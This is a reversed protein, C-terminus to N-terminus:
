RAGVMRVRDGEIIPRDSQLIIPVDLETEASFVTNLDGRLTVNIDVREAFYSYGLLTNPVQRAVLIFNGRPDERIASNPLHNARTTYVDEIIVNAREGGIAGSAIVTFDVRFRGDVATINEIEGTLSRDSIAPVLIEINRSVAGRPTPIFSSPFYISFEFHHGQRVATQLVPQNETVPARDEMDAAFHVVGNTVAYHTYVREDIDEALNEELLNELYEIEALNEPRHARPLQTNRFRLHLIRDLIMSRDLNEEEVHIIFLPDGERVTDGDEVLFYIQGTHEAWQTYFVETYGLVASGRHTQTIDGTSDVGVVVGAVDLNHITNSFFTLVVMLGIVVFILKLIIRKRNEM